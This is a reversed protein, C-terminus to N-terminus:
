RSYGARLRLREIIEDATQSPTGAVEVTIADEDAGPPELTAFQSDLLAEPMYHGHRAALRHAIRDPKGALYVFTVHEGRLV